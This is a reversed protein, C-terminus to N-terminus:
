GALGPVVLTKLHNRRDEPLPVVKRAELDLTIGIAEATAVLDGREGDFIWHVIHNAKEGVHKLGSRVVIIDGRKLARRVRMRYELVAGGYKTLSREKGTDTPRFRRTLHVIGDSVRGILHELRVREAEDCEHLEVAGRTIETLGMATTEDLSPTKGTMVSTDNLPLSRPSGHPPVEVMHDGARAAFDEPLAVPEGTERYRYAAMMNFTASVDDTHGNVLEVYLRVWNDGVEVIGARGVIGWGPHVERLFRLHADTIVMETGHGAHFERTLGLTHWFTTLGERM